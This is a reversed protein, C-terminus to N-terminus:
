DKKRLEKVLKPGSKRQEHLVKLDRSIRKRRQPDEEHELAKKLVRRQKRLKSLLDQLKDLKQKQKRRKLDLFDRMREILKKSSM